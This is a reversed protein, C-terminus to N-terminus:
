IQKLSQIMSSRTFTEGRHLSYGIYGRKICEQRAIMDQNIRSLRGDIIIISRDGTAEIIKKEGFQPPITGPIYGTSLQYFQAYLM